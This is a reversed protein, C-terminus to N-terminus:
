VIQLHFKEKLFAPLEAETCLHVCDIENQIMRCINRTEEDMGCDLLLICSNSGAAGLQTYASRIVLEIDEEHGSCPIVSLVIQKRNGGLIKATLFRIIDTIGIISLIAIMTFFILEPM